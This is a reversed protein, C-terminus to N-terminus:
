FNMLDTMLSTDYGNGPQPLAFFPLPAPAPPQVAAAPSPAYVPAVRSDSVQQHAPPPSSPVANMEEAFASPIVCALFGSLLLYRM